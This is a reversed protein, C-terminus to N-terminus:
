AARLHRRAASGGQSLVPSLLFRFPIPDFIVRPNPLPPARFIPKDWVIDRLHGNKVNSDPLAPFPSTSSPATM